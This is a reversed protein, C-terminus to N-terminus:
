LPKLRSNTIIAKYTKRQVRRIKTTVKDSYHSRHRVVERMQMEQWAQRAEAMAASDGERNATVYDGKIEAAKTQFFKDFEKEV